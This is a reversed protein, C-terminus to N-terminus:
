HSSIRLMKLQFFDETCVSCPSMCRLVVEYQKAYCRTVLSQKSAFIPASVASFSGELTRDNPQFIRLTDYREVLTRASCRRTASASSAASCSSASKKRGSPSRTSGSGGSRTSRKWRRRTTCASSAWRTSRPQFTRDDLSRVM